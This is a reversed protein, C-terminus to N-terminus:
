ADSEDEELSKFQMYLTYIEIVVKIAGEIFVELKDNPIDFEAQVFAHLEEKEEADLDAIEAPVNSIGSIAEPLGFLASIDEIGVGDSLAEGIDLGVKVVDKLDEIGLKEAM